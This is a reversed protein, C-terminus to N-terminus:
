AAVGLLSLMSALDDDDDDVAAAVAAAVQQGCSGIGVGGTNLAGAVSACWTGQKVTAAQPYGPPLLVAGTQSYAPVVNPELNPVQFGPPLVAGTQQGYAPVVIPQVIPVQFGAPSSYSPQPVAASVSERGPYGAPGGTSTYPAPTIFRGQQLQPPAQEQQPAWIDEQPADVLTIGLQQQRDAMMDLLDEPQPQNLVMALEDPALSCLARLKAAAAKSRIRLSAAYDFLSAVELAQLLDTACM